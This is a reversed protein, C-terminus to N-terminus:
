KNAPICKPYDAPSVRKWNQTKGFLSLGLYGRVKMDDKSLVEADVNYVDGEDAKYIQGDEWENPNDTQKQLGKMIELGCMPRSRLRADPNKEDFQLGGEIIWAIYGVLTGDKDVEVRIASRENQTLWLGEPNYTEAAQASFPILMLLAILYKM